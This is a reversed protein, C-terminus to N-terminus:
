TAHRTSPWVSQRQKGGNEPFGRVCRVCARVRSRYVAYEEQGREVGGKRQVAAGNCSQAGGRRIGAVSQTEGPNMQM